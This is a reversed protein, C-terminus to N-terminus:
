RLHIFQKFSPDSLTSDKLLTFDTLTYLFYTLYQVENRDLLKGKRITSDTLPNGTSSEFHNIAVSLGWTRGDHLYPATRAINRLSPVKFRLSDLPNRTIRMRGYDNLFTDVPLGINRYSFDTFLPEPHCTACRAQFIQYGKKEFDSFVTDGQKMRDYKSDASIISGTFQALAKLIRQSTIKSDGFARKFMKKYADDGKLKILISDLSEAMEKPDTIPALPQVEIHNIGGDLHFEKQWALNFLPPTNRFSFSNNFGHSFPHEYDSFAAFQQHCSACSTIGDKSLRGDYFLKRGLDVGEQTLPNDKFQYVPVPFGQPIVQKLRRLPVSTASSFSQLLIVGMFGLLAIVSITLFVKM